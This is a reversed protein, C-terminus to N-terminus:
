NPLGLVGDISEFYFVKHGLMNFLFEILPIAGVPVANHALVEAGEDAVLGFVVDEEVLSM